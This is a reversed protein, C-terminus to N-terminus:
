PITLIIRIPIVCTCLRVNIKNNKVATVKFKEFIWTGWHAPLTSRQFSTANILGRVPLIRYHSKCTSVNPIKAVFMDFFDDVLNPM